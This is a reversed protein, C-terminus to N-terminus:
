NINNAISCCAAFHSQSLYQFLSSPSSQHIAPAARSRRVVFICLFQLHRQGYRNITCATCAMLVLLSYLPPGPAFCISLKVPSSPKGCERGARRGAQRDPRGNGATRLGCHSQTVFWRFEITSVWTADAMGPHYYYTDTALLPLLSLAPIHM